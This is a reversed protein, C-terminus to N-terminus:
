VNIELVFMTLLVIWTRLANQNVVLTLTETISMLAHAYEMEVNLMSDALHHTVHILLDRMQLLLTHNKLNHNKVIFNNELSASLTDYRRHTTTYCLIYISGRHVRSYVCM